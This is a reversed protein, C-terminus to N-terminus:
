PGPDQLPPLERELFWLYISGFIFVGVGSFILSGMETHFFEFLQDGKGQGTTTIMALLAIRITNSFLGVLPASVLVMIRSLNSRIPFAMMFILAVCVIQAIMDLGNCGGLVTVGGGQLLVDRGKVAVPVGLISVWFAAAKATFLSLYEEPLVRIILAYSPLMWLCILSERLKLLHRIPQCLLLLAFGALPALIYVIGEWFLIRGTRMIVWLVGLSGFVLGARSPNPELSELQDEMCILAGGWVLLAFVGTHANQSSTIVAVNQTAVAAALLLWLNRPTAPPIAPIQSRLWHRAPEPVRHWQIRLWSLLANQFSPNM